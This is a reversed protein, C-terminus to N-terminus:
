PLYQESLIIVETDTREIWWPMDKLHEGDAPPSDSWFGVFEDWTAPQEVAGGLTATTIAVSSSVVFERKLPNANRIYYDNPVDEGPAIFGDEVAAANAEEGTLMEAFDIRIHRAGAAEWVRDIYGMARINGNPLREEASSLVTTTTTASVTTTSQSRSTTTAATTQTTSPAVSTTTFQTTTADPEESGCASLALISVTMAVGIVGTVVSRGRVPRGARDQMRGM